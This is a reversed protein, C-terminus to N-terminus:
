PATLEGQVDFGDIWVNTGTSASAKSGTTEIRLVHAGEPLDSVSYLVEGFRSVNSYSDVTAVLAGDLYVRAKGSSTTKAGIWDIGVGTFTATVSKGTGSAYRATGGSFQTRALTSWTGTWELGAATEEYLVPGVLEVTVPGSLDTGDFVSYTFSDTGRFGFAPAYTFSGNANLTLTGHAPGVGRVVVMPDGEVDSDNALVGTLAPVILATGARFRYSDGTVAPPDNVSAVAITVVAVDTGGHGDSARYAFADTGYWNAAPTYTYAGDPALDVTGHAAPSAVSVALGDGDADSDNAVVDGSATTDEDCAASDDAAVPADNVPTVTITVAVVESFSAGDFAQYTFSDAGSFGADPVYILQGSPLLALEGHAVDGVLVATLLDGHPDSDNALVGSIAPVSLAEDEATTYGDALAVPADNTLTVTFTVIAPASLDTGDDARYVFSDEGSYGIDATYTFTGDADFDLTGHAVGSVIEAALPDGEVDTDNALVSGSVPVGDSAAFADPAATPADNVAAVVITVSGIDTGGQGDSVAYAFGDIGYWDAAPTYTYAGGLALDLTGHAPGSVVSASLEDGDADTDNALVDGSAPVDEDCATADASAVPADNVPTVTITVTAAASYLGGDYARYRFSDTGCFDPAPVYIYRGNSLMALEGHAVDSYLSATLTTAGDRDFD